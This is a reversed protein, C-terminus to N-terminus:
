LIEELSPEYRLIGKKLEKDQKAIEMFKEFPLYGLKYPDLIAEDEPKVEIDAKRRKIYSVLQKAIYELVPMKLETGATSYVIFEPKSTEPETYIELGIPTKLGKIDYSVKQNNSTHVYYTIKKSNGGNISGPFKISGSSKHFNHPSGSIGEGHGYIRSYSRKM